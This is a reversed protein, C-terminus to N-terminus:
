AVLATLEAPTKAAPWYRLRKLGGNLPVGGVSRDGLILRDATAPMAATLSTKLPQGDQISYVESAKWSAAVKKPQSSAPLGAQYLDCQLVGGTFIQTGAGGANGARQAVLSILNTGSGNDFTGFLHTAGGSCYGEVFVSGEAPNWNSTFPTGTVRIVDAGRLATAGSTRIRSTARFGAELQLESLLIGSVGDGAYSQDRAATPSNVLATWASGSGAALTAVAECLYVGGGMPTIFGKAGNGQTGVVGAQLDFNVYGTSLSGSFLAQVHRGDWKAFFSLAYSQASATFATSGLEHYNAVTTEKVREFTLGVGPADIATAEVTVNHKGWWAHALNTSYAILNTAQAEALLFRTGYTYDFRPVDAGVVEVRGAANVQTAVGTRTYTIAPDLPGTSFDFDFLTGRTAFQLDATYLRGINRGYGPDSPWREGAAPYADEAVAFLLKCHNAPLRAGGNLRPLYMTYPRLTGFLAPGLDPVQAIPPISFTNASAEALPFVRFQAADSGESFQLVYVQGTADQALQAFNYTPFYGAASLHVDALVTAGNASLVMLWWGDAKASSNTVWYTLYVRADTHSILMGHMRSVPNSGAAGQPQPQQVTQQAFAAGGAGLTYSNVGSFLYDVGGGALALPYDERHPNWAGLGLVALRSGNVGAFLADYGKRIGVSETRQATWTWVGAIRKGFIFRQTTADTAEAGTGGDVSIKIVLMGDAGIGAAWYRGSSPRAYNTWDGPVDAQVAGPFTLVTMVPNGGTKRAHVLHVEQAAQDAELFVDDVTEWAGEESWVGAPTRKRVVAEIVGQAPTAGMVKTRHYALYLTGDALEVHRHQHYGWNLGFVPNVEGNADSVALELGSLAHTPLEPAKAPRAPWWALPAGELPWAPTIPPSYTGGQARRRLM